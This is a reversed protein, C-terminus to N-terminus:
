NYKKNVYANLLSDLVKSLVVSTIICFIVTIYFIHKKILLKVFGPLYVPTIFHILILAIISAVLQTIHMPINFYFKLPFSFLISASPLPTAVVISAWLLLTSYLSYILTHHILKFLFICLFLISILKFKSSDLDM